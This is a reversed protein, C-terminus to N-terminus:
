PLHANYAALLAVAQANTILGETEFYSALWCLKYVYLAASNMYPFQAFRTDKTGDQTPCENAVAAIMAIWNAIPHNNLAQDPFLPDAEEWFATLHTKLNGARWATSVNGFALGAAEQLTAAPM